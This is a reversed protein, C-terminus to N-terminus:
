NLKILGNIYAFNDNGWTFTAGNSNGRGASSGNSIAWLIFSDTAFTASMPSAALYVGSQSMDRTFTMGTSTDWTLSGGDALDWACIYIQTGSSRTDVVQTPLSVSGTAKDYYLKIDYGLGTATYSSNNGDATITVQGYGYRTYNFDFQWNGVFDEYRMYGEPLLIQLNLTSTSPQLPTFSMPGGDYRLEQVSQGGVEIPRQLVIGTTSVYYPIEETAGNAQLEMVRGASLEAYGVSDNGDCLKFTYMLSDDMAQIKSIEDAWVTTEPVRTMVMHNHYKKGRLYISDNTTRTIAFEYDQGVQSGDYEPNALYHFITNYTNVTLVPGQDAIVDYSSSTTMTPTAIDSAATVKGNAFKMFYTYGGASYDEGMWLHLEWGNSASELLTKYAAVNEEVREAAPTGFTEDDDHLSCSATLLLAGVVLVSYITKRM